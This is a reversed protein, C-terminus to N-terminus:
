RSEQSDNGWATGAQGCRTSTITNIVTTIIMMNITISSSSSSSRFPYLYCIPIFIHKIVVSARVHPFEFVRRCAFIYIISRNVRGYGEMADNNSSTSNNNNSTTASELVKKKHDDENAVWEVEITKVKTEVHNLMYIKSDHVFLYLFKWDQM